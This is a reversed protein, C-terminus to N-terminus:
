GPESYYCILLKSIETRKSVHTDAYTGACWLIFIEAVVGEM